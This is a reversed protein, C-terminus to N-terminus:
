GGRMQVTPCLGSSPLQFCKKMAVAINQYFAAVVDLQGVPSRMRFMISCDDCGGKQQPLIVRALCVKDALGQSQRCLTLQCQSCEMDSDEENSELKSSIQRPYKIATFSINSLEASYYITIGLPSTMPFSLPCIEM